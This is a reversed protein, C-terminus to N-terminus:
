PSSWSIYVYPKAWETGRGTEVRYGKSQLYSALEYLYSEPGSFKFDYSVSKDGKAIADSIAANLSLLESCLFISKSEEQLVSRRREANGDALARAIDANPLGICAQEYSPPPVRKEKDTITHRTKGNHWRWCCM